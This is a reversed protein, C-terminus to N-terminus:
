GYISYYIQLEESTMESLMKGRLNEPLKSKKEEQKPQTNREWAAIIKQKWNRIPKGNRDLWDSAEYYDFFRKADVGNNRSECYAKIEEITPPIFAKKKKLKTEIINDINNDINNPLSQKITGNFKTSHDMLSQKIGNFKSAYSCFKISGKRIEKKDILDKEILSKLNKIVGQKTSNTWEALYQLSGNFESESDQSFGHIIAFILLENGKLELENLMWGHIVIHNNSRVLKKEM